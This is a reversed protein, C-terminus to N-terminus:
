EEKRGFQFIMTRSNYNYFTSYDMVRIYKNAPYYVRIYLDDNFDFICSLKKDEVSTQDASIEKFFCNAINYVKKFRIPLTVAFDTIERSSDGEKIEIPYRLFITTDEDNFSTKVIIQKQLPRVVTLGTKEIMSFDLCYDINSFIENSAREEIDTIPPVDDVSKYIPLQYTTMQEFEIGAMQPDIYGGQLGIKDFIADEATERLCGEVQQQILSLSTSGEIEKNINILPANPKISLVLTLIIVFLISIFIFLSIQGRKKTMM